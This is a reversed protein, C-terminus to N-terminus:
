NTNINEKQEINKKKFIRDKFIILYLVIFYVVFIGLGIFLKTWSSAVFSMLLLVPAGLIVSWLTQFVMNTCAPTKFEPDIERLLIVGTSATGTLMGYMCLFSEEFYGDKEFLHKCVHKVYFFTVVAAIVCMTILPLIFSPEKFAALNISGIAAVVMIDFSFGSIRDMMYNNVYQKKIMGKDECKTIIGRVLIAIGTGVIFNFGWFLPKVTNILFGVGSADCGKSILYILGFSIAYSLMVIGLQVSFKDITGSSPIENEGVYTEISEKEKGEINQEQFKVNGKKKQVFLYLVGGVSASVFGMAAVALGFTDGMNFAGFESSTADLNMYNTGWNLAQGPGQGYGMPVLVGSAPWSSVVFYLGISVVLGVIAQILYGTVTVLSSNFIGRRNKQKEEKERKGKRKLSTAVFGIGLCHYTIMELIFTNFLPNGTIAKYVSLFILLIFGGLVPSPILSKKLPKIVQILLNGLLLSVFIASLVLIFSWFNLDDFSLAGDVFNFNTLDM